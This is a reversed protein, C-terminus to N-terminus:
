CIMIKPFFDKIEYPMCRVFYCVYSSILIKYKNSQINKLYIYDEFPSNIFKYKKMIDYKLAFSIGIRNRIINKDMKLPIIGGNPYGMRFVCIDLNPYICLENKLNCIYDNSLYDDDDLFGIWDSCLGNNVLYEFGINRVLGANNKIDEHGSKEIEIIKIRNDIKNDKNDIKNDKNDIKNDENDKDYEDFKDFKDFLNNKIGDFIILANWNNDKLNLLSNVSNKLSDRGITPIIFTIFTSM